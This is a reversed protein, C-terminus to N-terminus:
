RSIWSGITKGKKIKKEHGGGRVVAHPMVHTQWVDVLSAHQAGDPCVRDALGHGLLLIDVARARTARDFLHHNSPSWPKAAEIVLAAASGPPARGDMALLRAVTAASPEHRVVNLLRVHNPDDGNHLLELAREASGVHLDECAPLRSELVLHLPSCCHRTRQLWHIVEPCYSYESRMDFLFSGNQNNVGLVRNLVTEAPVGNQRLWQVVILENVTSMDNEDLRSAFHIPESGDSTVARLSAGQKHLWQLVELKGYAAALHIPQAGDHRRKELPVGKDKLFMLINLHGHGAAVHAITEGTVASSDVSMSIGKAKSWMSSTFMGTEYLREITELDGSQCANLLAQYAEVRPTDQRSETCFSLFRPAVVMRVPM